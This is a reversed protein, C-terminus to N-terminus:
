LDQYCTLLSQLGQQQLYTNSLAAQVVPSVAMRWPSTGGAGLAAKDRPIGLVILQKFRTRGQKWRKWIMQRLRRRLWEDLAGFVSQTQALKFYTFWGRTYTNIEEIVTLLTGERGRRTLRRLNSRCRLLAQKAIRIRPKGERTFFSFGLLKRKGPRDVTSKDENVKLNLKKEIFKRISELVREGARKSKVYITIDDAYRVFRHQRKTLEKDLDDLMINALLPSLPGGQPTGKNTEVVVGNVLVGANLYARILKLVQKDKVVRAVRAMLKDHNVRDFFNSLDIDTVWDYGEQIYRQATKVATHARKGPRYGFSAPSFRPEFQLTLIQAIAQQLFRDLVTPIGLHRKEGSRKPIDKRRVPVPKYEGKDLQKRIEQWHSKLYKRLEGTKMGDSGPAGKNAEVRRLATVLNNRSFIKEWM